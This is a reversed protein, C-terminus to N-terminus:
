VHSVNRRTSKTLPNVGLREEISLISDIHKSIEELEQESKLFRSIADRREQFASNGISKLPSDDRVEAIHQNWVQQCETILNLDAEPITIQEM